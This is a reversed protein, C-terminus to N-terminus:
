NIEHTLHWHEEAHCNSCLLICKDAEKCLKEIDNSFDRSISFEKQTPDIHHFQLAGQCKDYGCKVCKGGARNILYLKIANRKANINNAHQKSSNKKYSPSCKYCYKRAWGKDIIEYVSGCLKCVRQSNVSM